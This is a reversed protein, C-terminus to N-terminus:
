KDKPTVKVNNLRVPQTGFSEVVLKGDKVEVQAAGIMKGEGKGEADVELEIWGIPYDESRLGRMMEVAAIPRDTILRIRRGGNETPFTRAM